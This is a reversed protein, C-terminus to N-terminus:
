SMLLLGGPVISHSHHPAPLPSHPVPRPPIRFASHPISSRRPPWATALLASNPIPFVSNFVKPAALRNRCIAGTCNGWLTPLCGAHNHRPRVAL